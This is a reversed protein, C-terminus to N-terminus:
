QPPLQRSETDNTKDVIAFVKQPDFRRQLLIKELRKLEDPTMEQRLSRAQAKAGPVGYKYALYRFYFAEPRDVALGQGKLYMESLSLAAKANGREAADAYWKAARKPDPAVGLGRQYLYGVCYQAESNYKKAFADCLRMAEGYDQKVGTGNMLLVVLKLAGDPNQDAVKRYWRAADAYSQRLDDGKEYMEGIQVISTSTSFGPESASRRVADEAASSGAEKALLFWAYAFVPDNAVGEGNYYAAGLNFMAEPNGQKAAKRYWRVAEEKDRSVGAGMSYMIGLNNEAAADGQDAAKRYWQLALAESQPVGNGDQYAKGLATQAAVDGATAKAKLQSIESSSLLSEKSEKEQASQSAPSNATLAAFSVACLLLSFVLKMTIRM